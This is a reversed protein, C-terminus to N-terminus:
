AADSATGDWSLQSVGDSGYRRLGASCSASTQVSFKAPLGAKQKIAFSERIWEVCTAPSINLARIQQQSIIKM